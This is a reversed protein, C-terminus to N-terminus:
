RAVIDEWFREWDDYPGINLFRLLSCLEEARNHLPNGTMALRYTANLKYTTKAMLSERNKILHAEELIVRHFRAREDLLVIGKKHEEITKQLRGAQDNYFSKNESSTGSLRQTDM